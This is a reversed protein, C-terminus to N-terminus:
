VYGLDELHRRTDADMGDVDTGETSINTSEFHEFVSGVRGEDTRAVVFNNQVTPIEVTLSMDGRAVSKRVRDDPGYDYVANTPKTYLSLDGVFQSARDQKPKDLGVATSTVPEDTAFSPNGHNLLRNVATPFATLSVLDDVRRSSTDGPERVVLPVHLLSEHVSVNHEAIRVGPRIHSYEGFGEGHDATVVVLTEDLVERQELAAFLREVAADAQRIAGDYLSELAERQWWPRQGGAFQWKQESISDQIARLQKGGWLDHEASPEYPIHADMLNLCAAWPSERASQWDLFADVYHNGESNPRLIDPLLKPYDYALKISVGNALSKLTQSDRMATRLYPAYQGMGSEAVFARPDVAEPFPVNQPGHITEFGRNLGVDVQTIWTNESFVATEYGREVLQEFITHGPELRNSTARLGHEPVPRGTFMSAHSTLSTAAPARAQTYVVSEEALTSLFPTTERGYGHLSTNRARVSDLVVLLINPEVGIRTCFSIFVHQGDSGPRKLRFTVRHADIKPSYIVEELGIISQQDHMNPM